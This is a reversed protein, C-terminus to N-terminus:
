RWPLRLWKPKKLIAVLCIVPLSCCYRDYASEALSFAIVCQKVFTLLFYMMKKRCSQRPAPLVKELTEEVIGVYRSYAERYEM